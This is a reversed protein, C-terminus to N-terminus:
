GYLVEVEEYRVENSPQRGDSLNCDVCFYGNAMYGMEFWKDCACCEIVVASEHTWHEHQNAKYPSLDFGPTLYSKTALTHGEMDCDPNHCTLLLMMGSWAMKGSDLVVPDCGQYVMPAPHNCCRCRIRMTDDLAIIKVGVYQTM